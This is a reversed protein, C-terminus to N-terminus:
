YPLNGNSFLWIKSDEMDWGPTQTLVNLSLNIQTPSIRWFGRTEKYRKQMGNGQIEKNGGPVEKGRYEIWAGVQNKSIIEGANDPYWRRLDNFRMGEFCLEYRREKQLREFSYSDYKPLGARERLQNMGTVTEELEDLMLLVDAYRVLIIDNRNDYQNSNSGDFGPIAYFFNKFISSKSADSYCVPVTYKKTHFMAM